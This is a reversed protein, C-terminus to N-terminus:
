EEWEVAPCNNHYIQVVIEMITTVGKWLWVFPIALFRFWKAKKYLWNGVAKCTQLIGYIIVITAVAAIFLEGFILLLKVFKNLDFRGYHFSSLWACLKWVFLLVLGVTAGAAVYLLFQGVAKFRMVLNTIRQKNALSSEKKKRQKTIRQYYQESEIKAREMKLQSLYPSDEMRCDIVRWFKRESMGLVLKRFRGKDNKYLNEYRVYQRQEWIIFGEDVSDALWVLIAVFTKWAAVFPIILLNLISLWFYPCMHSFDRHTFGWIYRMMSLHWSNKHLVFKDKFM